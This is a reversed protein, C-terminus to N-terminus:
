PRRVERALADLDDALRVLAPDGDPAAGYLLDRVAVTPRGSRSAVAAIVAGPEADTPLGLLVAIRSRCGARLADAARDRARSARYLRARGEVTEAARVVVPLPEAVIPGLRRARWFALVVVAIGLQGAAFLTRDPLLDILSRHEAAVATDRLTPVLWVLRPNAGLVQLGLAANGSHGLRGNTWPAGDGILTVDRRAQRLQVFTPASGADNYFCGVATGTLTEFTVGGTEASQAVQVAPLDCDAPREAIGVHGRTHVPVPVADLQTDDPAVVVLDAPTDALTRMLTPPILVSRTILLTTGPAALQQAEAVTTVRTVDVGHDRLLTALARSGGSDVADPDLSGQRGGPNAVTLLVVILAIFGAILVPARATRWLDRRSPSASTAPSQTAESQPATMTM